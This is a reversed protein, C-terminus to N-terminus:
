ASMRSPIWHHKHHLASQKSYNLVKLQMLCSLLEERQVAPRYIRKTSVPFALFEGKVQVKAFGGISGEAPAATVDATCLIFHMWCIRKNQPASLLRWKALDCICVSRVPVLYVSPYSLNFGIQLYSIYQICSNSTTAMICTYRHLFAAGWCVSWLPARGASDKNISCRANKLLHGRIVRPTNHRFWM